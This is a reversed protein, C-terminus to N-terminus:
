DQEPLLTGNTFYKEPFYEHFLMSVLKVMAELSLSIKASEDGNVYVDWLFRVNLNEENPVEQYRLLYDFINEPRGVDQKWEEWWSNEESSSRAFISSMLFDFLCYVSKLEKREVLGNGNFDYINMIIEVLRANLLFYKMDLGTMHSPHNLLRQSIGTMAYLNDLMEDREKEVPLQDSTWWEKEYWKANEKEKRAASIEQEKDVFYKSFRPLDEQWKSDSLVFLLAERRIEPISFAAKPHELLYTYLDDPSNKSSISAEGEVTKLDELNDGELSKGDQLVASSHGSQNSGFTKIGNGTQSPTPVIQRRMVRNIESLYKQHLGPDLYNINKKLLDRIAEELDKNPWRKKFFHKLKGSRVYDNLDLAMQQSSIHISELWHGTLDLIESFKDVEKEYLAVQEPLPSCVEKSLHEPTLEESTSGERQSLEYIRLIMNKFRIFVNFKEEKKTINDITDEIDAKIVKHNLLNKLEQPTLYEEHAGRILQKYGIAKDKLCFVATNLNHILTNEKVEEQSFFDKFVKDYELARCQPPNSVEWDHVRHEPFWPEEGVKLGCSALFCIGLTIFVTERNSCFQFFGVSIRNFYM